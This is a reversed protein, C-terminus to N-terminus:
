VTLSSSTSSLAISVGGTPAPQTLTVTCTSSSNPGLNAPSCSLSSVLVPASLSIAATASSGSFSATLTVTQSSSIAGASAQFTASTATTPVTISAQVSLQINNDSILVATGGTPAAMSLTVTCTASTGSTLSNPTCQLESVAPLVNISGGAGTMNADTGNPLTGIVNSMPLSDVAAGSNPSLTATITALVGSSMTTANAGSAVC